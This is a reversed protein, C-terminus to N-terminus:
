DTIHRKAATNTKKQSLNEDLVWITHKLQWLGSPINM